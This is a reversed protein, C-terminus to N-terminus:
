LIPPNFEWIKTYADIALLEARKEIREQDWFEFSGYEEIQQKFFFRNQPFTNYQPNDKLFDYKKQPTKDSLRSNVVKHFALLNGINNCWSFVKQTSEDRAKARPYWHEITMDTKKYALHAHYIKIRDSKPLRRLKRENQDIANFRDLIYYIAKNNSSRSYEYDKFRAVFEEKTALREKLVKYLSKLLTTFESKNEINSFDAAYRAYLKEVENGVRDLVFNNIFHYNELSEFFLVLTNKHKPEEDLGLSYYKKIFSWMLPTAQTVGFLNLGDISHYIRYLRGEDIVRSSGCLNRIVPLLSEESEIKNIAYFFTSFDDLNILLEDAATERGNDSYLNKLGNFLKATTIHGNESIYFYKLMRTLNNNAKEVIEDWYGIV